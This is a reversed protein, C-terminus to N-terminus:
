FCFACHFSKLVFCGEDGASGGAYPLGGDAAEYGFSCADDDAIVLFVAGFGQGFGEAPFAGLGFPVVERGDVEVTAFGEDVEGEGGVAGEVDQDVVHAAFVQFFVEVDGAEVDAVEVLDEVHVEAAADVEGLERHDGHGFLLAAGHDVHGGDAAEDGVEAAGEVSGAFGGDDIEGAVDGGLHAVLADAAVGDGRAEDEGGGGQAVQGFVDAGEEEAFRGGGVQALGFVDGGDDGEEGGVVGAVHRALGEHGVAAQGDM